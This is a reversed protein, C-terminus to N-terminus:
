EEGFVQASFIKIIPKETKWTSEPLGAKRCIADLFQEKNWNNETAVQPLLVGRRRRHEIILGDRGVKIEDLSAIRKLPTMVSIEIKIDDIESAKMPPFRRDETSASRANDQVAEFIPKIGQIYGICGRLHGSKKLTVFVGRKEKMRDKITVKKLLEKLSPSGTLHSVLTARAIKLLIEQEKRNLQLPDEPFSSSADHSLKKENAQISTFAIAAYSVSNSFDGTLDASRYYMRLHGKSDKDLLKLLIGIPDSGCITDGTDQLYKQFGKFDVDLIKSIAGKDLTELNKEINEEFPLYGYNRGYHTFDSSIVFLNQPEKYEKLVSAVAKFEEESALRGIMIPVIKFNKLTKQLFPVQNEISHESEEARRQTTFIDKKTLLKECIERDVRVKGLPTEYYDFSSVAAGRLFQHHSFGLIFVRQYDKGHLCKFAAAACRGSWTYGAHPSILAQVPGELDCASVGKFFDSLARDLGGRSGDYWSGAKAAKRVLPTKESPTNCFAVVPLLFFGVLFSLYFHAPTRKIKM